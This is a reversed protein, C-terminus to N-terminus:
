KDFDFICTSPKKWKPKELLFNAIIEIILKQM